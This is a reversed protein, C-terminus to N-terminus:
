DHSETRTLSVNSIPSRCARDYAADFRQRWIPFEKVADLINTLNDKGTIPRHINLLQATTYQYPAKWITQKYMFLHHCAAEYFDFDEFM